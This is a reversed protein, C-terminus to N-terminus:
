AAAERLAKRMTVTTLAERGALVSGKSAGVWAACEAALNLLKGPYLQNGVFAGKRIQGVDFM